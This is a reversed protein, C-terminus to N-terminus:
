LRMEVGRQKMYTKVDGVTYIGDHFISAALVADAGAKVAEYLHEPNAAGGSAIVPLRVSKSVASLLELDYGSKTGDRDWSTLLIEGAGRKEGERAWDIADIGTRETGSRVVVEWGKGDKRKAADIALVACQSGFFTAIDSILEPRTVAATNVGVKDAGAELLAKADEASRVGGGVTLPITLHKRVTRVTEYATKRGDPTASVDLLVLEDAGQREYMATLEAPSGADRLGQFKVGKVVRGDRTDLCPIVRVTLM